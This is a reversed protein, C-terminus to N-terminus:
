LKNILESLFRSESRVMELNHQLVNTWPSPEDKKQSSIVDELGSILKELVRMRARLKRKALPPEVYQLFYLSLDLSFEPRKFNLFSQTLLEDFRGLGKQTLEYVYRQPRKGSRNARKLVMGKRELVRLPYYISKLDVGSFQSFIEKVEKKIDYGHKPREKLLGLLILEHEIM